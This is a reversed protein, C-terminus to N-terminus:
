GMAGRGRRTIARDGERGARPARLEAERGGSPGEASNAGKKPNRM